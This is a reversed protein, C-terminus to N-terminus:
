YASQAHLAVSSKSLGAQMEIDSGNDESREGPRIWTNEEGALIPRSDKYTDEYSVDITHDVAIRPKVTKSGITKSSASTSHGKAHSSGGSLGLRSLMGLGNQSRIMKQITPLCAVFIAVGLEIM